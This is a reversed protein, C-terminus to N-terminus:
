HSRLTFFKDMLEGLRTKKPVTYLHFNYTLERLSIKRQSSLVVEDVGLLAKVDEMIMHMSVINPAVNKLIKKPSKL